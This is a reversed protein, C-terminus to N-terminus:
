KQEENAADDRITRLQITLQEVYNKVDDKEDDTVDDRALIVNASDIAKRLAPKSDEIDEQLEKYHFSVCASM